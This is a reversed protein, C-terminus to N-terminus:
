NIPTVTYDEYPYEVPFGADAFTVSMSSVASADNWTITTEVYEGMENMNVNFEEPNLTPGNVGSQVATIVFDDSYDDDFTVEVTLSNGVSLLVSSLYSETLFLWDGSIYYQTENLENEGVKVSTIEEAQAWDITCFVKDPNSLDYDKGEEFISAFYTPIIQIGFYRDQSEDFTAFFGLYNGPEPSLSEIFSQLITLNPITVIYDTNEILQIENYQEFEDWYYFTVETIESFSAWNIDYVVDDPEAISFLQEQPWIDQANISLITGFSFALFLFFNGSKKRINSLYNKM